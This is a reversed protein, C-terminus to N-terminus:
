GEADRFETIFSYGAPTKTVALNLGMHPELATVKDLPAVVILQFGLGLWAGIARGTFASDAKVFGEDLFVPAFRPWSRTQDGLQYRLAAGVVFAVLEQSEGGSKDGLTSYTSVVSGDPDVRSATIEIHRRVDLLEDRQANVGDEPLDIVDIFEQLEAFRRDAEEDTWEVIEARALANLQQKVREVREPHLHRMEIRLRDTDSAFALGSLIEDVPDLRERISQLAHGFSDSLMKLDTASVDRIHRRFELRHQSLKDRAIEDYIAQYEEYAEISTGRNPDPWREDYARFIRELAERAAHLAANERRIGQRLEDRLRVAVRAFTDSTVEPDVRALERDLHQQDEESLSIESDLSELDTFLADQRDVLAGWASNLEDLDAEARFRARRAAELQEEAEVLREAADSLTGSEALVTERQTKLGAVAAEASTQDISEWSADEIRRYAEAYRQVDDQERECAVRAREREAIQEDFSALDVEVDGRRSVNSFGLIGRERPDRGHAGRRGDSTQGAITVGPTSGGLESAQGVCLHDRAVVQRRVWGAFPSDRFALRGSIFREDDPNAAGEDLDVGEFRVRRELRVGDIAQRIQAQRREDMLLTMGIGSLTAEAALRWEDFEPRVDMLEAAFPLDAPDMGAASAIAQRARDFADPIRSGRARMSELEAATERKKRRLEGVTIVEEDRRRKIDALREDVTGLFDRAVGRVSAFAESTPLTAGIPELRALLTRRADAVQEARVEAESIRADLRSLQGGGGEERQQKLDEVEVRLAAEAARASTVASKAADRSERNQAEQEDVLRQETRVHWLRFPTPAQPDAAVGYRDLRGARDKAAEYDAYLAAIDALMREKAEATQLSEHSQRLAHFQELVADAAQFTSPRELVMEKFLRDVTRVQHGAQIRALLRLANDSDGGEGIGLRAAVAYLFDQTTEHHKLGPFAARMARPDFRSDAFDAVAGLDFPGDITLHRTRVDVSRGANAPAFYTRIASHQRGSGDVFTAAVAGWASTGEGRLVKDVGGVSDSKGRLYTLVNRQDMGRARGVTADNSAGNFPVTAPMMLATYADLLTSKGTGSGGSILTAEDDFRTTHLGHFGGWNIVQLSEIRWQATEDDYGAILLDSM